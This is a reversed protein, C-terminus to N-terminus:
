TYKSSKAECFRLGAPALNLQVHAVRYPRALGVFANERLRFDSFRLGLSLPELWTRGRSGATLLKRFGWGCFGSM